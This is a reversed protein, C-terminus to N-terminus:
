ARRRLSRGELARLGEDFGRGLSAERTERELRSLREDLEALEARSLV